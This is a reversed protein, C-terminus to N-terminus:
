SFTRAEFVLTVLTSATIETGKKKRSELRDGLKVESSTLLLEASNHGRKKERPISTQWSESGYQSM